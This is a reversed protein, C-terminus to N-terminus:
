YSHHELGNVFFKAGELRERAWDGAQIIEKVGTHPEGPDHNSHPVSCMSYRYIFSSITGLEPSAQFFYWFTVKAPGKEVCTCM